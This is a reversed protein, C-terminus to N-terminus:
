VLKEFLCVILWLVCVLIWVDIIGEYIVILCEGILVVMADEAHARIDELWKVLNTFSQCDEVSFFLLVVDVGRYVL